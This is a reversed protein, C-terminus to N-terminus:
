EARASLHCEAGTMRQCEYICMLVDCARWVAKDDDDNDIDANFDAMFNQYTRIRDLPSPKSPSGFAFSRTCMHPISNVCLYLPEYKFRRM